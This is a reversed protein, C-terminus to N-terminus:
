VKLNSAFGTSSSNINLSECKFGLQKLKDQYDSKPSVLIIQYGLSQLKLLFNKRFNYISWSSNSTFVIKM